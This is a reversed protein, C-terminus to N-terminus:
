ESGGASPPAAVGVDTSPVFGPLSGNKGILAITSASASWSPKPSSVCSRQGLVAPLLAPQGPSAKSTGAAGACPAASSPGFRSGAGASTTFLLRADGDMTM